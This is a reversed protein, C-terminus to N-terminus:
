PMASDTSRMTNQLDILAHPIIKTPGALPRDLDVIIAIVLAVMLAAIVRVLYRKRRCVGSLYGIIFFGSVGILTQIRWITEPIHNLFVEMRRTHMDIVQNVAAEYLGIVVSSQNASAVEATASWLEAQVKSSEQTLANLHEYDRASFYALQLDVYRRLIDQTQTRYPEPLTQTRLYATGMANAEDVVQMRRADYRTAAGNFTFALILSLLALVAGEVVTLQSLDDREAAFRTAIRYGIETAAFLMIFFALAIYFPDIRYVFAENM